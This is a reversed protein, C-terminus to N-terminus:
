RKKRLERSVADRQNAGFRARSRSITGEFSDLATLRIVGGRQMSSTVVNAGGFRAVSVKVFFSLGSIPLHVILNPVLM